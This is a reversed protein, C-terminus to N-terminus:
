PYGPFILGDRFSFFDVEKQLPNKPQILKEILFIISTKRIIKLRTM